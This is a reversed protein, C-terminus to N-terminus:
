GSARVKAGLMAGCLLSGVLVGTHRVIAASLPDGEAAVAPSVRHSRPSPVSAASRTPHPPHLPAFACHAVKRAFGAVFSKDFEAYFHRLLDQQSEVQPVAHGPRQSHAPLSRVRGSDRVSFYRKMAEWLPGPRMASMRSSSSSSSLGSASKAEEDEGRATSASGDGGAGEGAARAADQRGGFPAADEGSVGLRHMDAFGLCSGHDACGACVLATDLMPSGDLLRLVARVARRAIDYASGEPRSHTLPALPSARSLYARPPRVTAM